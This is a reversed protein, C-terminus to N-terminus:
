PDIDGPFQSRLEPVAGKASAALEVTLIIEANGAIRGSDLSALGPPSRLRGDDVTFSQARYHRVCFWSCRLSISKRRHCSPQPCIWGQL